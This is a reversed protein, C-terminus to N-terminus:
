FEEFCLDSCSDTPLWVLNHQFSLALSRELVLERQLIITNAIANLQIQLDHRNNIECSLPTLKAIALNVRTVSRVPRFM